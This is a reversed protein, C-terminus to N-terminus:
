PSVKAAFARAMDRITIQDDSLAFSMPEGVTPRLGDGTSAEFAQIAL